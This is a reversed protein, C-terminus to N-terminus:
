VVAPELAVVSVVEPELAAVSVVVAEVRVLPLAGAAPFDAAHHAAMSVVVVEVTDEAVAAHAVEVVAGVAEAEGEVAGPSGKM